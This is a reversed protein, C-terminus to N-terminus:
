VEEKPSKDYNASYYNFMNSGLRSLGARMTYKSLDPPTEEPVEQTVLESKIARALAQKRAERERALQIRKNYAAQEKAAKNQNYLSYGESALAAIAAILPLAM